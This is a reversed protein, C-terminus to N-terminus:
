HAAGKVAPYLPHTSKVAIVMADYARKAHPVSIQGTRSDIVFFSYGHRELLWMTEVPHYGFGKSLYGGEYLILPANSRELLNAAGRFVFYEAGEVDIKMVDVQSISNQLLFEDLTTIPAREIDVVESDEHAPMGITNLGDKGRANIQLIAEGTYDGVASRVPVLNRVNNLHANKTLREFTWLTPEFAYVNGQQIKKAAPISFLGVNAGIDVFTMGPQLLSVIFELEHKEFYRRSWMELPVSGEPALVYSLGNARVTIPRHRLLTNRIPFIVNRRILKAWGLINSKRFNIYRVTRLGFRAIIHLLASPGELLDPHFTKSHQPRIPTV